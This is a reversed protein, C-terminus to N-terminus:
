KKIKEILLYYGVDYGYVGTGDGWICIIKLDQNKLLFVDADDMFEKGVSHLYVIRQEGVKMDTMLQVRNNEIVSKPQESKTCNIFVFSLLLSLILIIRKM